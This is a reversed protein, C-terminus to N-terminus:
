NSVTKYSRDFILHNLDTKFETKHIIANYIAEDGANQEGHILVISLTFTSSIIAFSRRWNNM